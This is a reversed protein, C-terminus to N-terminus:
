RFVFRGPQRSNVAGGLQVQCGHDRELDEATAVLDQDNMEENFLVDQLAM